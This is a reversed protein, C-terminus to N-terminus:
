DFITSIDHSSSVEVCRLDPKCHEGLVSWRDVSLCDSEDSTGVDVGPLLTRADFIVYGPAWCGYFIGFTWGRGRGSRLLGVVAPLGLPASYM